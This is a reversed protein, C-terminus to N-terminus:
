TPIAAGPPLGAGTASSRPEIRVGGLEPLEALLVSEVDGLHDAIFRMAVERRRPQPLEAVKAVRRRQFDDWAERDPYGEWFHVRTWCPVPDLARLGERDIETSCFSLMCLGRLAAVHALGAASVVCDRLYLTRLWPLRRLIALDDDSGREVHVTEVFGRGFELRVKQPDFPRLECTWDDLHRELLVREREGVHLNPLRRIQTRIFEARDPDGNDDLWDAYALRVLDDDPDDAIAQVLGRETETMAGERDRRDAGAGECVARVAARGRAAGATGDRWRRATRARGHVVPDGERSGPRVVGGA